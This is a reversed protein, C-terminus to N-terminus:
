YIHLKLIVNRKNLCRVNISVSHLLSKMSNPVHYLLYVTSVPLKLQQKYLILLSHITSYPANAPHYQCLFVSTSPSSGM